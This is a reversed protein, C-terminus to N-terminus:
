VFLEKGAALHSLAISMPVFGKQRRGEAMQRKKNVSM